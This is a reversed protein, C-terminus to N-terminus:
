ARSLITENVYSLRDSEFSIWEHYITPFSAALQLDHQRDRLTTDLAARSNLLSLGTDDELITIDIDTQRQADKDQVEQWINLQRMTAENMQKLATEEVFPIISAGLKAARRANKMRLSKCEDLATNLDAAPKLLNTMLYVTFNKFQAHSAGTGYEQFSQYSDCSEPDAVPDIKAM